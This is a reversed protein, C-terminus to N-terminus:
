KKNLSLQLAEMLDKAQHQEEDEIQIIDKGKIKAEIALELKKQYEDKYIEPKFTTTMNEILKTALKLEEPNIKDLKDKYPNDKIEDLFYLTNLLMNNKVTRILILTEKYGLVTKGLAVKNTKTMVKHLLSYANFAGTPNIYYTKNYFIPDIENIDIFNSININKDRKSKLKEFDDDEFIVYKGEEYEYGKIIDDQKIEKNNCDVCTKKYKIRSKTKKELLNFNITNEKAALHLTIPIYVFGFTISGKFSYM